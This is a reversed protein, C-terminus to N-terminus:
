LGSNQHSRKVFDEYKRKIHESKFSSNASCHHAQCFMVVYSRFEPNNDYEERIKTIEELNNM